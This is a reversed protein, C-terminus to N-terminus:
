MASIHLVLADDRWWEWVHVGPLHPYTLPAIHVFCIRCNIVELLICRQDAATHMVDTWEAPFYSQDYSYM